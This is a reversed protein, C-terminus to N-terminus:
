AKEEIAIFKCQCLLAKFERFNITRRRITGAVKRSKSGYFIAHFLFLVVIKQMIGKHTAHASGWCGILCLVSRSLDKTKQQRQGIRTFISLIRLRLNLPWNTPGHTRCM